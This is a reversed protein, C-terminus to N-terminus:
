LSQSSSNQSWSPRSRGQWVTLTRGNAQPNRAKALDVRRLGLRTAHAQILAGVANNRNTGAGPNPLGVRDTITESTFPQGSAALEFLVHKAAQKWDELGLQEIRSELTHKCFACRRLEAVPYGHECETMDM